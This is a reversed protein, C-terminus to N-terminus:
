QDRFFDPQTKVEDDNKKISAQKSKIKNFFYTITQQEKPKNITVNINGMEAEDKPIFYQTILKQGKFAKPKILIQTKRTTINNHMHNIRTNIYGIRLIERLLLGSLCVKRNPVHNYKQFPLYTAHSFQTCVWRVLENQKHVNLHKNYHIESIIVNTNTLLSVYNYLSCKFNLPNRDHSGGMFVVYDQTTYNQCIDNCTKLVDEIQANPKVIATVNYKEGLSDQLLKRLQKGSEDSFIIVKRKSITQERITHFPKEKPENNEFKNENEDLNKRDGDKYGNKLSYVDESNVINEQLSQNRRKDDVEDMSTFNLTTKNISKNGKGTKKKTTKCIQSLVETKREYALIQKKLSFNEVILNEIENEATQLKNELKSIEFRQANLKEKLGYATDPCSRNLTRSCDDDSEEDSPLSEFSNETAINIKNKNRQTVYNSPTHLRSELPAPVLNIKSIETEGKASKAVNTGETQRSTSAVGVNKKLIIPTSTRKQNLKRQKCKMCNWSARREKDMLNYLKENNTCSLDYSQKCQACTLFHKEAIKRNCQACVPRSGM